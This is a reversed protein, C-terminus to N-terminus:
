DMIINCLDPTFTNESYGTPCTEGQKEITALRNIHCVGKIGTLTALFSNIAAYPPDGRGDWPAAQRLNAMQTPSLSRADVFCKASAGSITTSCDSDQNCAKNTITRYESPASVLPTSSTGARGGPGGPGSGRNLEILADIQEQTPGNSTDGREFASFAHPPVPAPTSSTGAPGAPGPPGPPGPPGAPGAPGAPGPAGDKGPRGPAGRLGYPPNSIHERSYYAIAIVILVAVLIWETNRRAM